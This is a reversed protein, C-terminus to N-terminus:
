SCFPFKPLNLWIDFMGFSHDISVFGQAVIFVAIHCCQLLDTHNPFGSDILITTNLALQCLILSKWQTTIKSALTNILVSCASILFQYLLTVEDGLGGNSRIPLIFSCSCVKKGMIDHFHMNVAQDVSQEAEFTIFGFGLWRGLTFWPLLPSPTTVVCSSSCYRAEASHPDTSVSRPNPHHRVSLVGCVLVSNLCM